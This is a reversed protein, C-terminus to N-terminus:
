LPVFTTQGSKWGILTGASGTQMSRNRCFGTKVERCKLDGTRTTCGRRALSHPLGLESSQLFLWANQRSQAQVVGGGGVARRIPIAPPPSPPTLLVHGRKTYM